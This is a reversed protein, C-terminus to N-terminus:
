LPIIIYLRQLVNNHLHTIKGASQWWKFEHHQADRCFHEM